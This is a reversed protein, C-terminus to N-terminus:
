ELTSEPFEPRDSTPISGSRYARSNVWDALDALSMIANTAWPMTVDWVEVDRAPDTNNDYVERVIRVETKPLRARARLFALQGRGLHEGSKKFELITTLGRPGLQEFDVDGRYILGDRPHTAGLWSNFDGLGTNAWPKNSTM